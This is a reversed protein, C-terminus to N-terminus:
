FLYMKFHIKNILLNYRVLLLDRRLGQMELFIARNLFGNLVPYDKQLLLILVIM